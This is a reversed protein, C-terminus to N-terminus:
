GNEYWGMKLGKAHGYKVLGGMDPFKSNIVPDGAGHGSLLSERQNEICCDRVMQMMSRVTSARAVGKGAKM